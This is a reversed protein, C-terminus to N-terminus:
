GKGKSSSQGFPTKFKVETTAHHLIEEDEEVAGGRRDWIWGGQDGDIEEEGEVVGDLFPNLLVQHIKKMKKKKGEIKLKAMSIKSHAWNERKLTDMGSKEVLAEYSCVCNPFNASM